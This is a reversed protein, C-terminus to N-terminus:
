ISRNRQRHAARFRGANARATSAPQGAAQFQQFIADHIDEVVELAKTPLQDSEGDVGRRKRMRDARALEEAKRIDHWWDPPTRTGAASAQLNDM